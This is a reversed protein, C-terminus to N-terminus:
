RRISAVCDRALVPTGDHFWLGERLRLKWLRGDNLVTHGDVMQPTPQYKEDVGYLTDFVMYGHNRTIYAFTTIPDLVILDQQPIFRLTTATQARLLAPAASAASILTRRQM